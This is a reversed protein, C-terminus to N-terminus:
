TFLTSMRLHNFNVVDVGQHQLYQSLPFDDTLVLFRGRAHHLVATDTLGFRIFSPQATLESTPVHEERFEVVGQAIKAFVGSKAHDGIQGALNSVETLIHPTTVVSQFFSMVRLLLDFDEPLFKITRKFRGIEKRDVAGVVYLLLLNTDILIGKSRYQVLVSDSIM